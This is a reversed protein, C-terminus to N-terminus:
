FWRANSQAHFFFFRTQTRKTEFAGPEVVRPVLTLGDLAEVVHVHEPARPERLLVGVVEAEVVALVEEVLHAELLVEEGEDGM